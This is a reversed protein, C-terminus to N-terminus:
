ALYEELHGGKRNPFPPSHPFTAGYGLHDILCQISGLRRLLRIATVRWDRTDPIIKMPGYFPGPNNMTM